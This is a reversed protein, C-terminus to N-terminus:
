ANGSVGKKDGFTERWSECREATGAHFEIEIESSSMTDLPRRANCMKDAELGEHLTLLREFGTMFPFRLRRRASRTVLVRSLPKSM